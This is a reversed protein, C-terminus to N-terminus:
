EAARPRRKEDFQVVPEAGTVTMEGDVIAGRAIAITRASVRGRVVATAGLELKEEVQLDGEITGAVVARRTVLDGQWRAGAAVSLEGGIRGDGQIEGNVLLAGDVEIRGTIRTGAAILSPASTIRDLLRRRPLDSM